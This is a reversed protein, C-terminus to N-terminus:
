EVVDGGRLALNMSQRTVFAGRALEASSQGPSRGLLELSAYQPVTLEM